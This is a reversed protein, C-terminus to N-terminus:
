ERDAHHKELMRPIAHHGNESARRIANEYQTQGDGFINAGANLLVQVMDVRGHEAAGELATWGDIKAPPPNVDADHELLLYAIGLFGQMAAYQLATAGDGTVPSSNM